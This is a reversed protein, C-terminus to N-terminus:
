VQRDWYKLNNHYAKTDKASHSSFYMYNYMCCKMNYIYKYLISVEYSYILPLISTCLWATTSNFSLSILLGNSLVLAYLAPITWTNDRAYVCTDGREQQVTKNFFLM